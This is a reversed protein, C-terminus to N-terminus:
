SHNWSSVPIPALSVLPSSTSRVKLTLEVPNLFVQFGPSVNNPTHTHPMELPSWCTPRLPKYPSSRSYHQHASALGRIGQLSCICFTFQRGSPQSLGRRSGQVCFQLSELRQLGPSKCWHGRAEWTKLKTTLTVGTGEWGAIPGSAKPKLWVVPTGCDGAQLCGAM